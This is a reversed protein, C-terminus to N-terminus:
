LEWGDAWFCSGLLSLRGRSDPRAFGPETEAPLEVSASKAAM